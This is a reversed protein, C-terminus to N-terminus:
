FAEAPLAMLNDAGPRRQGGAQPRRSRAGPHRQRGRLDHRHPCRPRVAGHGMRRHLRARRLVQQAAVANEFGYDTFVGKIVPTMLGILDDAAQREATTASRHNIDLAARDV